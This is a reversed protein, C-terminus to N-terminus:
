GSGISSSMRASKHEGHIDKDSVAPSRISGDSKVGLGVGNVQKFLTQERM